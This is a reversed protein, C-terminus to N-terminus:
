ILDEAMTALARYTFIQDEGEELSATMSLGPRFNSFQEFPHNFTRGAHVTIETVKMINPAPMRFLVPIDRSPQRAQATEVPRM